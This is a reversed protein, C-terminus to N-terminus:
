TVSFEDCTEKLQSTGIEIRLVAAKRVSWKCHVKCKQADHFEYVCNNLILSGVNGGGM